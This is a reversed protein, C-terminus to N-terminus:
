DASELQEAQTHLYRQQPLSTTRAAAALYSDRAAAHDGAMEFLPGRVAHLRHDHGLRSDTQLRDLEELGAHPGHVMALAVARNLRVVPNEGLRLLVEYLALIQPWDTREVDPAEDHLAAIAAQLQYPGVPGRRMAETVLVTGEAILKSDWLGRDQVAMPILTGDPGTRAARRADTLLMLALLGTVEAADPLLRHLLRALRIAEASLEIRHLSPGSTAVYGENLILYLTHLVARLREPREEGSPMRFPVDSAAIAQKARTIRRTTTEEPVLFARGIEATTLGGVARLTLAIQSGPSLAPHCCMFLLVLTDDSDSVRQDAPPPVSLEAITWHAVTEERERRAQDSRLLDVLRRSAATILWGQPRDPIGDRQWQSSAALLGEQVADEALDFHGYRRVLAGLVEPALRRLLDEVSPKAM